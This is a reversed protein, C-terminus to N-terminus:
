SDKAKNVRKNKKTDVFESNSRNKNKNKNWTSM